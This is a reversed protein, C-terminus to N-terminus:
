YIPPIAVLIIEPIIQNVLHKQPSNGNSTDIDTVKIKKGDSTHTAVRPDSNPDSETEDEESNYYTSNNITSQITLGNFGKITEELIGSSIQRDHTM